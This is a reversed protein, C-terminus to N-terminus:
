LLECMRHIRKRENNHEKLFLDIAWEQFNGGGLTFLRTAMSLINMEVIAVSGTDYLVGKPDYTAPHNLAKMLFQSLSGRDSAAAFNKLTDSGYDTLDSALFIENVEIANRSEQVRSALKQFCRRTVNAGKRQVHRESRIHIGIFKGEFTNKVFNRAIQVLHANFELDSPRLSQSITSDLPFHAREDGNGRWQVIAVCRAGKLVKGELERASKIIEPDVCVYRSVKFGIQKSLRSHKIGPCDIWGDRVKVQKYLASVEDGNVRYWSATDKKFSEDQFLFHLVINFRRACHSELDRFCRFTSYGRSNLKLNFDQMNFYEDMPVYNRQGPKEVKRYFHSVGGPLGCMRSNNVFPVVLYRNNYKALSALALLNSTARGLQEYYRFVFLYKERQGPLTSHSLNANKGELRSGGLSLKNRSETDVSAANKGADTESQGHLCYDTHREASARTRYLINTLGPQPDDEAIDMIVNSPFKM